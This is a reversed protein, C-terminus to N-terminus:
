SGLAVRQPIGAVDVLATLREIGLAHMGHDLSRLRPQWTHFASQMPSRASCFGFNPTLTSGSTLSILDLYTERRVVEVPL